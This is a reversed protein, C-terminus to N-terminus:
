RRAVADDQAANGNRVMGFQASVGIGIRRQMRKRIRDQGGNTRAIDPMMERGRIAAPFICCGADEEGMGGTKQALAAPEDGIDVDRDNALRRLDSWVDAEIREATAAIRETATSRTETLAVVLSVRPKM